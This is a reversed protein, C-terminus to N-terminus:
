PGRRQARIRALAAKVGDRSIRTLDRPSFSGAGGSPAAEAGDGFLGATWSPLRRALFDRRSLDTEHGPDRRPEPM